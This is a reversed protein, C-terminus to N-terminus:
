ASTSQNRNRGNKYWKVAIWFFLIGGLIFLCFAILPHQKIKGWIFSKTGTFSTMEIFKVRRQAMLKSNFGFREAEAYSELASELNTRLALINGYDFYINGVTKNPANVFKLRESLQHEIDWSLDQLNYQHINEPIINRGFDLRLISAENETTGNIQAELIKVHVWESGHHSQPNLQMSKKIWYLASDPMGLLEYTTGLNSATTYLNPSVEEIYFYISKAKDYHTLYVLTAAYDSLLQISDKEKKLYGNWLFSSDSVLESHNFARFYVIGGGRDMSQMSGDLKTRYENICALSIQM